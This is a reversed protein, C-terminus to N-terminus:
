FLSDRSVWLNFKAALDPDEVQAGFYVAFEELTLNGTGGTNAARFMDADTVSITEVEAPQSEAGQTLLM